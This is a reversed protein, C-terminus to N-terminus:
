FKINFGTILNALRMSRCSDDAANGVIWTKHSYRRTELFTNANKMERWNLNPELIQKKIQKWKKTNSLANKKFHLHTDILQNDQWRYLLSIKIIDVKTLLKICQLM